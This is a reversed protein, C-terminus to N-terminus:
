DRESSGTRDEEPCDQSGQNEQQPNPWSLIYSYVKALVRSRETQDEAASIRNISFNQM